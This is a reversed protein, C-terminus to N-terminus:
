GLQPLANLTRLLMFRCSRPQWAAPPVGRGDQAPLRRQSRRARHAIIAHPQHEEHPRKKKHYWVQKGHREQPRRQLM